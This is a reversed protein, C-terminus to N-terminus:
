VCERRPIPLFNNPIWIFKRYKCDRNMSIPGLWKLETPLAACEYRAPRSNSGGSHSLFYPNSANRGRNKNPRSVKQSLKRLVEGKERISVLPDGDGTVLWKDDVDPYAALIKTVYKDIHYKGQRLGTVTQQHMGAKNAFAKANGGELVSVLYDIRQPETM